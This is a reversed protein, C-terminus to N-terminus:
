AYVFSALLPPRHMEKEDRERGENVDSVAIEEEERTWVV